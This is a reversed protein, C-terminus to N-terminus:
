HEFGLGLSLSLIADLRLSFKLKCFALKLLGLAQLLYKTAVILLYTLFMLSFLLGMNRTALPYAQIKKLM